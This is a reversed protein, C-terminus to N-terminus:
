PRLLPVTRHRPRLTAWHLHLQEPRHQGGAAHWVRRIRLRHCTRGRQQDACSRQGTWRPSVLAAHPDYGEITQDQAVIMGNAHYYSRTFTPLKSSRYEEYVVTDLGNYAYFIAQTIPATASVPITTTIFTTTHQEVRRGFGDYVNRAHLTPSYAHSGDPLTTRIATYTAELRQAFDYTQTVVVTASVGFSSALPAYASQTIPTTSAIRNGSQNYAFSTAGARVLANLADHQYDTEILEGTDGMDSSPPTQVTRRTINGAPDFDWMSTRETDGSVAAERLRYVEDYM